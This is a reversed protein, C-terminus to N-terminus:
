DGGFLLAMQQRLQEAKEETFDGEIRWIIEGDINIIAVHISEFDTIELVDLLEDRNDLFVMIVKNHLNEDLDALMAAKAMLRAYSPIDTFIPTSYYGLDPYDEGRAVVTELWPGVEYLQDRSFLIVALTYEASFAEPFAVVNGLLDEGSFTPFLLCNDTGEHLLCTDVMTSTEPALYPSIVIVAVIFLMLVVLISGWFKRSKLNIKM